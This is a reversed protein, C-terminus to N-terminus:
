PSLLKIFFASEIWLECSKLVDKCCESTSSIKKWYFNLASDQFRGHLITHHHHHFYHHHFLWFSCSSSFIFATDHIKKLSNVGFPSTDKKWALLGLSKNDLFSCFQMNQLCGFSTFIILFTLHHIIIILSQHIIIIIRHFSFSIVM